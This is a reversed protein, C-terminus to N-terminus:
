TLCVSGREAQFQKHVWGPGVLIWTPLRSFSNQEAGKRVFKRQSALLARRAPHPM